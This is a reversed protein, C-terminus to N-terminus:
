LCVGGHRIEKMKEQGTTIVMRGKIEILKYIQSMYSKDKQTKNIENLM